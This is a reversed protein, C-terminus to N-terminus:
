FYLKYVCLAFKYVLLDSLKNNLCCKEINGKKHPIDVLGLARINQTPEQSTTPTPTLTTVHTTPSSSSSPAAVKNNEVDYPAMLSYKNEFRVCSNV